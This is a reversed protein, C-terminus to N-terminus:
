LEGAKELDEAAEIAIRWATRMLDPYLDSSAICDSERYLVRGGICVRTLGPAVHADFTSLGVRFFAAAERRTLLPSRPM